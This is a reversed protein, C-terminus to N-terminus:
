RSPVRVPVTLVPGDVAVQGVIQYGCTQLSRLINAQAEEADDDAPWRPPM